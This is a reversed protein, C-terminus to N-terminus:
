CYDIVRYIYSVCGVFQCGNVIRAGAWAHGRNGDSIQTISWKWIASEVRCCKGGVRFLERKLNPHLMQYEIWVRHQILLRCLKGFRLRMCCWARWRVSHACWDCHSAPSVNFWRYITIQHSMFSVHEHELVIEHGLVTRRGSCLVQSPVKQQNSINSNLEASRLLITKLGTTAVSLIPLFISLHERKMMRCCSVRFKRLAVLIAPKSCCWRRSNSCRCSCSKLMWVDSAFAIRGWYLEQM